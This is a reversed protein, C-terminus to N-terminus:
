IEKKNIEELKERIYCGVNELALFIYCQEKFNCELDNSMFHQKTNYIADDVIECFIQTYQKDM